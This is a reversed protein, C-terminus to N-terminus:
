YISFSFNEDFKYTQRFHATKKLFSISRKSVKNCIRISSLDTCHSLHFQRSILPAVLANLSYAGVLVCVCVYMCLNVDSNAYFKQKDVTVALLHCEM